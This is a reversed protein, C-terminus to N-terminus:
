ARSRRLRSLGIAALYFTATLLVIAAGAPLNWGYSLLLGGGALLACLLTAVIMIQWLRSVFRNATAVPLTLLAIVLVLGVVSVMVVVTLGILCILLTYYLGVRLGRVRAFEEDFCIAALRNYLLLTVALVLIDLIVMLILDSGSVMLINGFLYSMLDESFGPTAAISVVGLAMGVAWIAGILTDERERAKLSVAAILLAALLAAVIAGHLPQLWSWGHVVNLYRALGMGALVSHAIGGALYTLRRTVVFAGVVGCSVSALLAALLAYQLFLHRGVAAFFETM